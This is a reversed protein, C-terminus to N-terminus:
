DDDCCEEGRIGERGEKILWPVMLLAALPDAWWWGALANAGLGLLLTFSLYSCVLTENAEARLARSGLKRAIRLKGVAIAPMVILSAVALAIGVVSTGPPEKRWLTWAANGVIYLALALFTGGIFRRVTRESRELAEGQTRRMQALLHRLMVSAAACEIISDLGFGFLAISEAKSGWVTAAIAEVINYLMTGAVLVVALRLWRSSAAAKALPQHGCGGCEVVTGTEVESV